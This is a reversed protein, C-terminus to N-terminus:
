GAVLPPGLVRAIAAAYDGENNERRLRELTAAQLRHWLLEDRQLTVVHRAFAAPDSATAAMLEREHEWGLQQQLLETAVVPIGFSAAEYIKYPTGAAFRTPAVFVRHSNYLPELDPVTGRLTIRPHDRFRELSVDSGVYGAVTLRTQWGLEHEILPMVEDVFWCLGDLNPSDSRHIAGVFLMGTREAFPRTTPRLPRMHGIVAVEDFGLDRLITAEAETVAVIKDCFRAHRLEGKIAVDVEFTRGDLAAKEAERLSAIAETDLVILPRAPSGGSTQQLIPHIGDLNHTRAVWIADYYDRRQVLFAQLQDRSHNHMVEVGDPLDAYVSALDFGSGNLPYVTVRYGMTAMLSVLDNSRVFGSGIMRLPVTDEIFLVRKLRTGAMRAVIQVGADRVQRRCLYAAHKRVFVERARTMEAAAAASSMSSGYEVHHIVVAPDYVVRYGAETMRICLDVDEYYAPAYDEDYGKLENLLTRRTMLFVGSCFDVDRVFNAEPCLPSADRMYGETSGDRWVISGAEQLVGHTRIVMGGVAGILPDSQLRRLAAAVAGPALEIDNNLYLVAPATAVILAANCGRLYGINTDFRLCTAGRVYRKIHRTEDTSGSDVLILEIDGPYNARLSSLATLTLAFQNHAVVIVSLAPVGSMGFNLPTRGFLVSLSSARSRFLAKAQGETLPAEVPLAPLLGQHRGVSLWHTFADAALGQELDRRVMEQEGYWALDLLESPRYNESKGHRLFHAYGNRFHRHEVMGAVNPFTARYYAESFEAIPDFQTPTDNCLYHELAWRWTGHKIAEAVASYRELYWAPDFFLSTRVEPEGRQLRRLCHWYPGDAAAAAAEEPTLQALYVSPDFLPHGIRGETNGRWLYHDYGNALGREALVEDTLDPNRRRYEAEDFLWHPSRDLCGGRCYADFASPFQGAEVVAAMTPYACRHWAENFLMNPSHVLGQGVDFYFELVAAASADALHATDSHYTARYWDADFVAWATSTAGPLKLFARAPLNLPWM